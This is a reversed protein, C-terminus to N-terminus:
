RTPGTSTSFQPASQAIESAVPFIVGVERFAACWAERKKDASLGAFAPSTSPLVRLTLCRREFLRARRAAYQGNFFVARLDPLREVLNLMENDMAERIDSDLSGPRVCQDVVDWLAIGGAILCRYRHKFELDILARGLIASMIPWFQNRPHAYYHGAQLSAAGPFSGLILIKADDAFVPALGRALPSAAARAARVSSAVPKGDSPIPRSAHGSGASM